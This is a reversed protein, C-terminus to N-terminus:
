RWRSVKALTRSDKVTLRHEEDNVRLTLMGSVKTEERRSSRAPPRAEAMRHRGARTSRLPAVRCQRRPREGSAEGAALRAYRASRRHRSCGRSGRRSHGCEGADRRDRVLLPRSAVAGLVIRAGDTAGDGPVRVLACSVLPFDISGRLRRKLYVGVAETPSPPVVVASLIEGHGLSLSRLGDGTLVDELRIAREGKSSVVM